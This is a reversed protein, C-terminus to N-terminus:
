HRYTSSGDHGDCPLAPPYCDAGDEQAERLLSRIERVAGEKARSTDRLAAQVDETPAALLDAALADLLAALAAPTDLGATM